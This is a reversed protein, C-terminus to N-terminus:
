RNLGVSEFGIREVVDFICPRNGHVHEGVGVAAEAAPRHFLNRRYSNLVSFSSFVSVSRKPSCPKVLSASQMSCPMGSSSGTKRLTEHGAQAPLAPLGNNQYGTAGAEAGPAMRSASRRKRHPNVGQREDNMM